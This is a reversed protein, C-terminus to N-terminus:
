PAQCYPNICTKSGRCVLHVPLYLVVVVDVVVVIVIIVVFNDTTYIYLVGTLM